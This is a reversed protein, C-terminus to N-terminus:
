LAESKAFALGRQQPERHVPLEWSGREVVPYGPRVADDSLLTKVPGHFESPCLEAGRQARRM